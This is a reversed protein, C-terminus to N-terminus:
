VRIKGDQSLMLAIWRTDEFHYLIIISIVTIPVGLFLGPLGWLFGWLVLSLIIVLPSTNLREGMLNPELINGIIIQTLGVGIIVIFFPRLTDFQVLALFSPLATAFLSGLNPVYNFIFILLAWFEAFDLQAFRMIGYSIIATLISVFTKVGIYARIDTDISQLIKLMEFRRRDTSIVRDIKQLFYRQELFIFVLYLSILGINGILSAMSGALSTIINNFAEEPVWQNIAPTEKIRFYALLKEILQIFNEQYLPAAEVVKSVNDTILQIFGNILVIITALSLVYASWQPLAYPGISLRGFTQALVNVLYWIFIAIILPILLAQGEVLVHFIFILLAIWLVTNLLRINIQPENM